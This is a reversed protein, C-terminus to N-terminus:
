MLKLSVVYGAWWLIPIAEVYFSSYYKKQRISANRIFLVTLFGLFLIGVWHEVTNNNKLIELLIIVGTLLYGLKKTGRVGLKQPITGLQAMDFKLDRIEFPLILAIAIFFRQIFTIAVDQQILYVKTVLPLLVTVGAVVFAIVYIKAGPIGRLNRNYNFVPLAYLVTVAGFVAALVLVGFPQFFASIVLGAFAFLSFVQIIKLNKALRVHHFKAIGAYKVFNYGTITGLFIFLLLHLDHPINFFLLTISTFCVIALSVHISSNIYFNLLNNLPSKMENKIALDRM